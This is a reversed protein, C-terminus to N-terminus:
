TNCSPDVTTIWVRKFSVIKINNVNDEEIYSVQYLHEPYQNSSIRRYDDKDFSNNVIIFNILDLVKIEFNKPIVVFTKKNEKIPIYNKDEIEIERNM